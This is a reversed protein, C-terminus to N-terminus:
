AQAVIGDFGIGGRTGGTLNVLTVVHTGRAAFTTTWALQLSSRNGRLNLTAVRHGDLYVAVSGYTTGRALLVGVSRGFVKIRVAQGKKTSSMVRAGTTGTRKVTRWGRSYTVSSRSTEPVYRSQVRGTATVVSGDVARAAARYSSAYWGATSTRARSVVTASSVAAAQSPDAPPRTVIWRWRVPVTPGSSTPTSTGPTIRGVPVSVTPRPPAVYRPDTSPLGLRYEIVAGAASQSTIRIGVRGDAFDIWTGGPMVTHTNGFSPDSTAPDGDLLYSEYGAFAAASPQSTDFERRVTVGPAGWGNVTAMWADRGVAQRFEVVYKTAGDSLTLVRLGTGTELPVVTATGDVTPALQESAGLVGLHRLHSANLYGQIGWSVAMIDNTDWYSRASCSAAPADIVRVGSISCDLEQSHGLGLNHGLEHGIVGVDNYGNTWAVGGSAVGSGVTGLGAIGGCASFSPFYVVLHKGSGGTWGTATEIESWFAMSSSVSGGPQCPANSTTVVTPYATAAFGVVGGTVEDWYGTVGANITSAVAAGTTASASTGPPQAIVVLVSHQVAGAAVATNVPAVGTGTAVQGAAPVTDVEVSGVSVGAEPNRADTGSLSSTLAGSSTRRIGATSRLRLTVTAGNVVHALSSAPVQVAGDSTRVYTIEDADAPLPHAFDDLHLREVTGTVTVPGGAAGPSAGSANPLVTAALVGAVGVVTLGRWLRTRM